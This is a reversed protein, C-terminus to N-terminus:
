PLALFFIKRRETRLDAAAAVAATAAVATIITTTTTCRRSLVESYFISKIDATKYWLLIHWKRLKVIWSFSYLRRFIDFSNTLNYEVKLNLWGEM